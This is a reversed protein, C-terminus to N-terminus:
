FPIHDSDLSDTNVDSNPLYDISDNSDGMDLFMSSANIPSIGLRVGKDNYVVTHLSCAIGKNPKGKGYFYFNVYGSCIAGGYILGESEQVPVAKGDKIKVVYPTMIDGTSTKGSKAFLRYYGRYINNKPDEAALEDGDRFCQTNKFSPKFGHEAGIKDFIVKIQDITEKQTKKDLLFYIRYAPESSEYGPIPIMKFVSPFAIPVKKIVLGYKDKSNENTM